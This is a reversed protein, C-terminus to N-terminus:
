EEAEETVVLESYTSSDLCSTVMVNAIKKAREAGEPPLAGKVKSLCSIKVQYLARLTSLYPQTLDDTKGVGEGFPQRLIYEHEFSCQCALESRYIKKASATLPALFIILPFIMLTFKKM